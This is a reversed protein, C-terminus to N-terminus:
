FNQVSEISGDKASIKIHEGTDEGAWTMDQRDDLVDLAAFRDNLRIGYAKVESLKKLNSDTRIM